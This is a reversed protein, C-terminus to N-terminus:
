FRLVPADATLVGAGQGAAIVYQADVRQTAPFAAFLGVELHGLVEPKACTFRYAADIDAHVEADQDASSRAGSGQAQGPPHEHEHEHEHEHDTRAAAEPAGAAGPRGEHTAAGGQGLLSTEVQVDTLRCEAQEGFRFLREGDKLTQIARELAERDAANAAAHEFGVINVAPSALELLVQDGEQALRLEAVGHEHSGHHRHEGAEEARALGLFATALAIVALSPYPRM